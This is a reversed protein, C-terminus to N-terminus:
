YRAIHEPIGVGFQETTSGGKKLSRLNWAHDNIARGYPKYGRNKAFAYFAQIRKSLETAKSASWDKDWIFSMDNVTPSLKGLLMKLSRALIKGSKFLSLHGINLNPYVKDIAVRNMAFLNNIFLEVDDQPIDKRSRIKQWFLAKSAGDSLQDFEKRLIDLNTLLKISEVSNSQKASELYTFGYDPNIIPDAGNQICLRALEVEDSEILWELLTAFQGKVNPDAGNQLLLKISALDRNAMAFSLASSGDDNKVNIFDKFCFLLDTKEKERAASILRKVIDVNNKYSAEMLITSGDNSVASIDAGDQIFLNVLEMNEKSVAFYLPSFGYRDKVGLDAGHEMFLKVLEKYNENICKTFPTNGYSDKRNVDAGNEVLLKVMEKAKSGLSVAVSLLTGYGSKIKSNVSAGKKILLRAIDITNHYVAYALPTLGSDDIGNIFSDFDFKKNIMAQKYVFDLLLTIIMPNKRIVAIHLLNNNIFGELDFAKDEKARKSAVEIIFKIVSLNDSKVAYMLPSRGTRNTNSIDAGALVLLRAVDLHKGWLATVLPTDDNNDKADIFDELLRFTEDTEARKRATDILLKTKDVLGQRAAHNLNTQGAYDKTYMNRLWADDEDNARVSFATILLAALLLRPLIKKIKMMADKNIINKYRNNPHCFQIFFTLLSSFVLQMLFVLGHGNSKTGRIADIIKNGVSKISKDISFDWGHCTTAILLAMAVTLLISLKKM